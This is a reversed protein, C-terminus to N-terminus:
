GFVEGFVEEIEYGPIDNMDHHDDAEEEPRFAAAAAAHGIKDRWFRASSATAARGSSTASGRTGAARRRVRRAAGARSESGGAHPMPRAGLFCAAHPPGTSGRARRLSVATSRPPDM